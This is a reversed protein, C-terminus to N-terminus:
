PTCQLDKLRKACWLRVAAVLARNDETPNVWINVLDPLKRKIGEYGTLGELHHFRLLCLTLLRIGALDITPKSGYTDLWRLWNQLDRKM